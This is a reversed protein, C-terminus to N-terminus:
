EQRRAVVALNSGCEPCSVDSSNSETVEDVEIYVVDEDEFPYMKTFTGDERLLRIAKEIEERAKNLTDIDREYDDWFPFSPDLLTREENKPEHMEGLPTIGLMHPLEVDTEDEITRGHLANSLRLAVQRRLDAMTNVSM